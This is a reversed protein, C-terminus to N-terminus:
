HKRMWEDIKAKRELDVRAAGWGDGLGGTFPTAAVYSGHDESPAIEGDVFSACVDEYAPDDADIPLIGISRLEEPTHHNKLFEDAAETVSAQSV